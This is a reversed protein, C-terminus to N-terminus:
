LLQKTMIQCFQLMVKSTSHLSGGKGSHGHDFASITIVDRLADGDQLTEVNVTAGFGTLTDSAVSLLPVNGLFGPFTIVWKALGQDNTGSKSVAIKIM